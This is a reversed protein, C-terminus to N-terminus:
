AVLLYGGGSADQDSGAQLLAKMAQKFAPVVTGDNLEFIPDQCLKGFFYEATLAPCHMRAYDLIQQRYFLVFEPMLACTQEVDLLGALDPVSLLKLPNENHLGFRSWAFKPYGTQSRWRVYHSKFYSQMCQDTAVLAFLCLIFRPRNEAQIRALDDKVTAWNKGGFLVLAQDQLIDKLVQPVGRFRLKAVDAQFSSNFYSEITM